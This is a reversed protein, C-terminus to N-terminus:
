SWVEDSHEAALPKMTHLKVVNRAAPNQKVPPKALSAPALGFGAASLGADSFGGGSGSSPAPLRAFLGADSRHAADTHSQANSGLVTGSPAADSADTGVHSDRQPSHAGGQDSDDSGYGALLDM